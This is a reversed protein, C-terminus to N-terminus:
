KKPATTDYVLTSFTANVSSFAAMRSDCFSLVFDFRSLIILDSLMEKRNVRRNCAREATSDILDKDTRAFVNVSVLPPNGEWLFQVRSYLAARGIFSAKENKWIRNVVREVSPSLAPFLQGSSTQKM